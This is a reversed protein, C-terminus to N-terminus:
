NSEENQSEESEEKKNFSINNEFNETYYIENLNLLTNEKNEWYQIKLKPELEDSQTRIYTKDKYTKANKMANYQAQQTANYPIINNELESEALEYELIGSPTGTTDYVILTQNNMIAIKSEQLIGSQTTAIYKEAFLNPITTTSAPIKMNPITNSQYKNLNSSDYNKWTLLSLDIQIRKQHIGDDELTTGQMGRQGEEFTFPYNQEQHEVYPTATTGEEVM